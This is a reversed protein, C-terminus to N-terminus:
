QRDATRVSWWAGSDVEWVKKCYTCVLGDEELACVIQALTVEKGFSVQAVVHRVGAILFSRVSIPLFKEGTHFGKGGIGRLASRTKLPAYYM